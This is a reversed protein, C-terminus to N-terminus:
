GRWGCHCVWPDTAHYKELRNGCMPCFRTWVMPVARDDCAPFAPSAAVPGWPRVVQGAARGMLVLRGQVAVDGGRQRLLADRGRVPPVPNGEVGHPSQEGHDFWRGMPNISRATSARSPPLIATRSIASGSGGAVRPRLAFTFTGTPSTPCARRLQCSDEGLVAQNRPPPLGAM